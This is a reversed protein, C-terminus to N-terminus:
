NISSSEESWQTGRPIVPCKLKYLSSASLAATRGERGREEISGGSGLDNRGFPPIKKENNSKKFLM